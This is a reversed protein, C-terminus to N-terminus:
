RRGQFNSRIEVETDDFVIRNEQYCITTVQHVNDRIPEMTHHLRKTIFTVGCFYM